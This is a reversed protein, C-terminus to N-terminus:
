LTSSCPSSPLWSQPQAAAVMDAMARQWYEEQELPRTDLIAPDVSRITFEGRVERIRDAPIVASARSYSARLAEYDIENGETLAAIEADLGQLSAGVEM